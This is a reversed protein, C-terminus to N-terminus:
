ACPASFLENLDNLDNKLITTMAEEPAILALYEWEDQASEYLSKKDQGKPIACMDRYYICLYQYGHESTPFITKAMEAYKKLEGLKDQVDQQKETSLENWHRCFEDGGLKPTRKENARTFTINLVDNVYKDVLSMTVKFGKPTCEKELSTKYAKMIKAFDSRASDSTTRHATRYQHEMAAGYNRFYNERSDDYQTACNCYFVAKEGYVSLTASDIKKQNVLQEGVAGINSYADGLSNCMYASIKQQAKTCGQPVAWDTVITMPIIAGLRESTNFYAQIAIEFPEMRSEAACNYGKYYNFDGIRYELYLDLWEFKEYKEPCAAMLKRIDDVCQLGDDIRKLIYDKSKKERYNNEYVSSFAHECELLREYPVVEIDGTNEDKISNQVITLLTYSTIDCSTKQLEDLFSIRDLKVMNKSRKEVTGQLGYVDTLQKSIEIISNRLEDVDRRDVANAINLGIWVSIAIGIIALCAAFMEGIVKDSNFPESSLIMLSTGLFIVIVLIACRLMGSMIKLAPNDRRLEKEQPMSSKTECKRRKWKKKSM